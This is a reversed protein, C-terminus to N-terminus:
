KPPQTEESNPLRGFEAEIRRLRFTERIEEIVKEEVSAELDVFIGGINSAFWGKEREVVDAVNIIRITIM